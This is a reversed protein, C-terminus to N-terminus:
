DVLYPTVAEPIGYSTYSFEETYGALMNGLGLEGWDEAYSSLLDDRSMSQNGTNLLFPASSLMAILVAAAAAPKAWRSFVLRLGPQRAAARMVEEIMDPADHESAMLAGAAEKMLQRERRCHECQELHRHLLHLEEDTCLGLAEDALLRETDQCNM